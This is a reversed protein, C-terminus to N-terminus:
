KMERLPMSFLVKNEKGHFPLSQGNALCVSVSEPFVQRDNVCLPYVIPINIEKGTRNSFFYSGTMEVFNPNVTFTLNEASFEAVQANVVICLTLLNGWTKMSDVKGSSIRSGPM